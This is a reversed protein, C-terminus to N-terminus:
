RGVVRDGAAVEADFAAEAELVDLVMGGVSARTRSGEVSPQSRVRVRCDIRDRPSRCTRRTSSSRNPDLEGRGSSRRAPGVRRGLRRITPVRAGRGTRGASRVRDDRRHDRPDGGHAPKGRQFIATPASYLWGVVRPDDDADRAIVLSELDDPVIATGDPYADRLPQLDRFIVRLVEQEAAEHIELAMTLEERARCSPRTTRRHAVTASTPCGHGRGRGHGRTFMVADTPM